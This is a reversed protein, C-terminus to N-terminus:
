VMDSRAPRRKSRRRPDINAGGAACIATLEKRLAGRSQVFLSQYITEHSVWMEPRDPYEGDGDGRDAPAVVVGADRPCWSACSPTSALKAPKPPPGTARGGDAVWARYRAPGGDRAVERSVTSTPRGLGRRDGGVVRGGGCGRSIEEREVLSM